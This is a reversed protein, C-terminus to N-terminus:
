CHATVNRVTASARHHSACAFTAWRRRHVAVSPRWWSQAIQTVRAIASAAGVKAQAVALMSGSLAGGGREAHRLVTIESV